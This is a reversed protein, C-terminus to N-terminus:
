VVDHLCLESIKADCNAITMAVSWQFVCQLDCFHPWPPVPLQEATIQMGAGKSVIGIAACPVACPSQVLMSTIKILVLKHFTRDVAIGCAELWLCVLEHPKDTGPFARCPDVLGYNEVDVTDRETGTTDM